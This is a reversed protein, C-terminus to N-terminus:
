FEHFVHILQNKQLIVTWFHMDIDRWGKKYCIPENIRILSIETEGLTNPLSAPVQLTFGQQVCNEVFKRYARGPIYLRWWYSSDRGPRISFYTVLGFHFSEAIDTSAIIRRVLYNNATLILAALFIGVGMVKLVPIM